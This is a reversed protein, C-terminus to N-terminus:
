KVIDLLEISFVLTSGARIVDGMARDGYATEPPCVILAKGGVKMTQVAATWCAVVQNLRFTAPGGHEASSDFVKGSTLRGEYNVKVSDTALPSAGSGETLTKVVVGSATRTTGPEAAAKDVYAKGTAKTKALMQAGRDKALEQVKPFYVKMDVASPKGNAADAMGKQVQALEHPTLSLSDLNQGVRQGLAYMVKDLEAPTLPESAVAPEPPGGRTTAPPPTVTGAAPAAAPDAAQASLALGLILAGILFRSM